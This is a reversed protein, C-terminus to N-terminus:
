AEVLEIERIYNSYKWGYEFVADEDTEDCPIETETAEDWKFYGQDYVGNHTKIYREAAEKTSFAIAPADGYDSYPKMSFASVLYIKTM